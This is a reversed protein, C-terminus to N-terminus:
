RSAVWPAAPQFVGVPNPATLNEQPASLFRRSRRRGSLRLSASCPEWARPPVPDEPEALLSPPPPNPEPQRRSRGDRVVVPQARAGPGSPFWRLPCGYDPRSVMGACRVPIFVFPWPATRRASTGDAYFIQANESVTIHTLQQNTARNVASLVARLPM